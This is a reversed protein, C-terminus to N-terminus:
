IEARGYRGWNNGGSCPWSSGSSVWSSVIWPLKHQLLLWPRNLALGSGLSFPPQDLHLDLSVIVSGLFVLISWSCSGSFFGCCFALLSKICCPCSLFALLSARSTVFISGISSCLQFLALVLVLISLLVLAPALVSASFFSSDLDLASTIGSNIGSSIGFFICSSFASVYSSCAAATCCARLQNSHM